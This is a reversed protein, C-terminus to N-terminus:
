EHAPLIQLESSRQIAKTGMLVADMV